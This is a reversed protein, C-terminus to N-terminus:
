LVTEEVKVRLSILSLTILEKLLSYRRGNTIILLTYESTAEHSILTGGPLETLLEM